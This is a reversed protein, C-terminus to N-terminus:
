MGRKGHGGAAGWGQRVEPSARSGGSERQVEAKSGGEASEGRSVQFGNGPLHRHSPLAPPTPPTRLLSGDKILVKAAGGLRM